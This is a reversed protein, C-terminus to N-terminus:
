EAARREPEAEEEHTPPHILLGLPSATVQVSDGERIEGALLKEALPNQLERQIV